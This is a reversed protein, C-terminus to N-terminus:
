PIFSFSNAFNTIVKSSIAEQGAATHSTFETKLDINQPSLLFQNLDIKLSASTLYTSVVKWPISPFSLFGKNEDKGIHFTVFHDYNEISDPITDVKAEIKMFIYGPNWGWHMGGANMINLPNSNSFASPDAHNRASDVGLIANLQTFDSSIGEVKLFTNGSERYDFFAIDSLMKSSGTLNAMYFKIDSFQIKYNENTTYTSDLYLVDAGFYPQVKIELENKPIVPDPEEPKEKECSFFALLSCTFLLSKISIFKLM